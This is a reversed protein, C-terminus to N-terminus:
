IYLFAVLIFMYQEKSQSFVLIGVIGIPVAAPRVTFPSFMVSPGSSHVDGETPQDVVSETPGILDALHLISSTFCIHYRLLETQSFTVSSLSTLLM